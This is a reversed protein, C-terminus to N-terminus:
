YPLSMSDQIMSYHQFPEGKNKGPQPQSDECLADAVFGLKFIFSGPPATRAKVTMETESSRRQSQSSTTKPAPNVEDEMLLLEEAKM